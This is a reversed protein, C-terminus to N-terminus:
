RQAQALEEQLATRDCYLAIHTLRYPDRYWQQEEQGDDAVLGPFLAMLQEAERRVVMRATYSNDGAEITFDCLLMCRHRTIRTVESHPASWLLRKFPSLVHIAKTDIYITGDHCAITISM